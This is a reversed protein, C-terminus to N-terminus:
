KMLIMTIKVKQNRLTLRPKTLRINKKTMLLNAKLNKWRQITMRMKMKKVITNMKQTMKM